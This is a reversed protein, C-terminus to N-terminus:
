PTPATRTQPPPHPEPGPLRLPSPNPPLLPPQTGATKVQGPARRARRERGPEAHLHAEGAQPLQGARQPDEDVVIRPRIVRDPQAPLLEHLAPGLETLDSM